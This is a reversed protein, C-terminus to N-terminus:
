KEADFEVCVVLPTPVFARVELAMHIRDHRCGAVALLVFLLKKSM